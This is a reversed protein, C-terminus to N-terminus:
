PVDQHEYAKLMMGRVQTLLETFSPNNELCNRFVVTNVFFGILPELESRDRNAIPSGILIDSQGSYRYLLTAFAAQLTMFLTTGSEQSLAILKEKLQIDLGVIQTEGRFTQVAPRPRDIPLELLKPSDQLQQKWYNLQAALKDRTLYQKQWAAFDAYQIPLEPLPSLKERYFAQYIISLEEMLIDISWGDSIIHHMAFILIFESPSLQLIKLRLLSSNELDFITEAANKVLQAVQTERELVSLRQLDIVPIELRFESHIIQVPKDDIFRFNTRLIEHRRIIESFAKELTNINLNGTIRIACPMNYTASEGELQNLFWLREQASSLPFYQNNRPVKPIVQQQYDQLFSIIEVKRQTLQSNISSNCWKVM